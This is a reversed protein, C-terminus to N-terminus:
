KELIAKLNGLSEALDSGLSGSMLHTMLNFPYPSRGEMSWKVLTQQPSVETTSMHTYAVSEMPRKFRLEMDIKEGETLRIIEMEGAGTKKDGDWSYVFGETADTGKYAKKIAPDMMLWKNYNDQNRQVKVYDFVIQKPQNITIEREIKYSKSVFLAVILFLIILGAIVGLIGLLIKM